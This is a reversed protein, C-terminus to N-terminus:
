LLLFITLFIWIIGDLGHEIAIILSLVFHDRCLKQKKREGLSETAALLWCIHKHWKSKVDFISQFEILM